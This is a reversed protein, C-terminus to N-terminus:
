DDSVDYDLGGEVGMAQNLTVRALEYANESQLVLVRANATDSRQQALDIEPRTGVEVFAQVQALHREQNELAARSIAILAKQAQALFYARRVDTAVNRTVAQQEHRQAERDQKSAKLRGGAQGFDYVLQSGTVGFSWFRYFDLEAETRRASAASSPIAGPRAVFNGTIRQFSATGNLQPLWDARSITVRADASQRQAEALRLAPQHERATSLAESLTLVRKRPEQALAGQALCLGLALSACASFLKRTRAFRQSQASHTSVRVRSQSAGKV